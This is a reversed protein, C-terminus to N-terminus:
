PNQAGLIRASFLQLSETLYTDNTIESAYRAAGELYHRMIILDAYNSVM